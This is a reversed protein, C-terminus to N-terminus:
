AAVSVKHASRGRKKPKYTPQRGAKEYGLAEMRKGVAKSHGNTPQPLGRAEHVVALEGIIEDLAIAEDGKKAKVAAVAADIANGKLALASAKMAEVAPYVKKEQAIVPKEPEPTPAAIEKAESVAQVPTEKRKLSIFSMQIARLGLSFSFARVLGWWILGLMLFGFEWTKKSTGTAEAAAVVDADPDAAGAKNEVKHQLDEVQKSLRDFESQWNKTRQVTTVWADRAKQAATLDKKLSEKSDLVDHAFATKHAQGGAQSRWEYRATVLMAVALMVLYIKAETSHGAERMTRSLFWTMAEFAVTAVAAAGGLSITWDYITVAQDSGLSTKGIQYFQVFQYGLLALAVIAGILGAVFRM